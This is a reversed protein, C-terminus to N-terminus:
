ERAEIFEKCACDRCVNVGIVNCETLHRHRDMVHGCVCAKEKEKDRRDRDKVGCIVKRPAVPFILGCEVCLCEMIDYAGWEEFGVEIVAKATCRPCNNPELLDSM